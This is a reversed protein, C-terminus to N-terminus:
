AKEFTFVLPVIEAANWAFQFAQNSAFKEAPLRRAQAMVDFRPRSFPWPLITARNEGIPRIRIDVCENPTKGPADVVVSEKLKDMCLLLSLWDFIQLLRVNAELHHTQCGDAFYPNGQLRFLTDAEWQKQKNVFERLRNEDAEVCHAGKELRMEVLFRAHRSVLLAAYHNQTAMGYISHRWIQLHLPVPMDFFDIPRQEADIEPRQEWLFWGQDHNIAALLVEQALTSIQFAQNGWQAALQGALWSHATQTIILHPNDRRRIM